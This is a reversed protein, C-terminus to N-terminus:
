RCLICFMKEQKLSEQTEKFEQHKSEYRMSSIKKIPGINRLIYSYHSAFHFKPRLHEDFLEMFLEHHETILDDLYNCIDENCHNLNLISLIERVLLYLRWHQNNEPVVDGIIGNLNCILNMMESASYKLKDCNFLMEMNIVPPKNKTAGFDYSEIRENFFDITFFYDEYILHRLIRIIDYHCIGELFDHMMDVVLNNVVHFNNLTNWISIEKIGSKRVDGLAADFSYNEITRLLTDDQHIFERCESKEMRCIRCFKTANFSESYGLIQNLGLNDGLILCPILKVIKYTQHNVDIGISSLKNLEDILPAFIRSNGFRARDKTHVLMALFIQSLKSQLFFPMCPISVYVGGIKKKNARSGLANNPEFDDFYVFLPLYLIHTSQDLNKLKNKWLDSQIFNYQFNDDETQIRAIEKIIDLLMDTSNFFKAFLDLLDIIYVNTKIEKLTISTNRNKIIISKHICRELPYSLYGEKQLQKFFMYESPIILGASLKKLFQILEINTTPNTNQLQDITFKIFSNFMDYNQKLFFLIKKRSFSNENYINTIMKLISAKINHDFTISNNHEISDITGSQLVLNNHNPIETSSSPLQNSEEVIELCYNLEHSSQNSQDSRTSSLEHNTKLHYRLSEIHSFLRFCGIVCCEFSTVNLHNRRLHTIFENVCYTIKNCIKCTYM